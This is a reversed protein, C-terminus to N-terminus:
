PISPVAAFFGPQSYNGITEHSGFFRYRHGVVFTGEPLVVSFCHSARIVNANGSSDAPYLGKILRLGSIQIPMPKYVTGCNGHDCVVQTAAPELAAVTGEVVWQAVEQCTNVDNLANCPPPTCPYAGAVIPLFLCLVM